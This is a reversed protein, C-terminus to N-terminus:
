VSVKLFPAGHNTFSFHQFMVVAACSSHMLMVSCFM